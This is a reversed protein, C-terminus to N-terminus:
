DREGSIAKLLEARCAPPISDLASLFYPVNFLMNNNLSTMWGRPQGRYRWDDSKDTKRMFDSLDELGVQLFHQNGTLRYAEGMTRFLQGHWFRSLHAPAPTHIWVGSSPTALAKDGELFVFPTTATPRPKARIEALRVYQQKLTEDYGHRMMWEELAFAVYGNYGGSGSWAAMRIKAAHEFKKDGTLEYLLAFANLPNVFGRKDGGSWKGSSERMLTEARHHTQLMHDASEMLVDYARRDGTFYYYALPAHLYTHTSDTGGSWQKEAHRRQAGRNTGYHVTGIDILNKTNQEAWDFYKREGTRAYMIWPGYTNSVENLTWGHRAIQSWMEARNNWKIQTAGFDWKGTWRNRRAHRVQWDFLEELVQEIDPYNEPDYPHIDGFVKTDAVYQPALHLLPRKSQSRLLPLDIERGVHFHFLMEQTTGAGVADGKGEQGSYASTQRGRTLNMPDGHEPWLHVRLTNTSPHIQLENPHRQSFERVAVSAGFADTSYDMIGPAQRGTEIAQYFWPRSRALIEGTASVRAADIAGLPLKKFTEIYLKALQDSQQILEVYKRPSSSHVPASYLDDDLMASWYRDQKEGVFHLPLHLSVDRILDAEPDGTFIFTHFVRLESKGAFAHIRIHWQCFPKGSDDVYHGKAHVVARLPGQEEIVVKCNPDNGSWYTNKQWDILRVGAKGDSAVIKQESKDGTKLWAQDIFNFRTKRVIFRLVGTDVEIHQDYETVSVAQAPALSSKDLVLRFDAKGRAPLDTQLDFLAWKLSKDPWYSAPQIQVPIAQGDAGLVTLQKPDHVVGRHFPIGGTIPVRHRSIGLTENVSVQAVEAIAATCLLCHILLFFWVYRKATLRVASSTKGATAFIALKAAPKNNLVM